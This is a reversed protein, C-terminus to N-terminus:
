TVNHMECGTIPLLVSGTLEWVVKSLQQEPSGQPGTPYSQWCMLIMECVKGLFVICIVAALFRGKLNESSSCFLFVADFSLASILQTSLIGQLM